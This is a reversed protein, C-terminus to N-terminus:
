SGGRASKNNSFRIIDPVLVSAHRGSGFLAFRLASKRDIFIGGHLGSPDRVVWRGADDRGVSWPVRARHRLLGSM